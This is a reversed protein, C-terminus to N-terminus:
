NLDVAKSKISCAASHSSFETRKTTLVFVLKNVVGCDVNKMGVMLLTESASQCKWIFYMQNASPEQAVELEADDEVEEEEGEEPSNTAFANAPEFLFTLNSGLSVFVM